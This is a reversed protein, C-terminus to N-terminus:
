GSGANDVMGSRMLGCNWIGSDWLELDWLEVIDRNGGTFIGTGHRTSVKHRYPTITRRISTSAGTIHMRPPMPPEEQRSTNTRLKLVRSGDLVPAPVPVAPAQAASEFNRPTEKPLVLVSCSVALTAAAGVPSAPLLFLAALSFRMRRASCFYGQFFSANRYLICYEASM